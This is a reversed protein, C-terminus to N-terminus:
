QGLMRRLFARSVRADALPDDRDTLIRDQEVILWGDYDAARLTDFIRAYDVDGQGLPVFVGARTTETFDLKQALCQALVKQSMDKLHCFNVQRAYTAFCAVPDVGAYALHGTDLCLGVPLGEVARVFEAIEEGTEVYTGVHPHFCVRLNLPASIECIAEMHHRLRRWGEADLVDGDAEANVRGSIQYRHPSGTDAMIIDRAGLASLLAAEKRLNAMEVEDLEASHLNVPCFASALKLQYKELMARLQDHDDPLYGWPGLETGEYGAAQMDSLVREPPLQPGWDPIEEVGWSVPANGIRFKAM